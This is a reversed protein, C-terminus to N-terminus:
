PWSSVLQYLAPSCEITLSLPEEFVHWNVGYELPSVDRTVNGIENMHKRTFKMLLRNIMKNSVMTTAIVSEFVSPVRLCDLPNRAKWEFDNVRTRASCPIYDSKLLMYHSIIM